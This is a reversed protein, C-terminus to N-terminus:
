RGMRIGPLPFHPTGVEGPVEGRELWHAPAPTLGPAESCGGWAALLWTLLLQLFVGLQAAPCSDQPYCSVPVEQRKYPIDRKKGLRKNRLLVKLRGAAVEM